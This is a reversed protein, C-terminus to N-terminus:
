TRPRFRLGAVGAGVLGVAVFLVGSPVPPGPQRRCFGTALCYSASPDDLAVLPAAPQASLALLMLVVTM